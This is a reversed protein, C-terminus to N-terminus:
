RSTDKKCSSSWSFEDYVGEGNTEQIEWEENCTCCILAIYFHFCHTSVLKKKNWSNKLRKM